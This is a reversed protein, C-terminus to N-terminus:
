CTGCATAPASPEFVLLPLTDCLCLRPEPKFGSRKWSKPARRPRRSIRARPSKTQLHCECCEGQLTGLFAVPSSIIRTCTLTQRVGPENTRPTVGINESSNKLPVSLNLSKGSTVCHPSCTSDSRSGPQRHGPGESGARECPARSQVM